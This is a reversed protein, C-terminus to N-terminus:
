RVFVLVGDTNATWSDSHEKDAKEAQSLYLGWIKASPDGYTAQYSSSTDRRFEQNMRRSNRPTPASVTVDDDQTRPSHGYLPLYPRIRYASPSPKEEVDSDFDDDIQVDHLPSSVRPISSGDFAVTASRSPVAILVSILSLRRCVRAFQKHVM